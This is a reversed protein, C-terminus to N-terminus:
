TTVQEETLEEMLGMELQDEEVADQRMSVPATRQPSKKTGSQSEGVISLLWGVIFVIALVPFLLVAM